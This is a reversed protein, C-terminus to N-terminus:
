FVEWGRENDAFRLSVEETKVHSQDLLPNYREISIKCEYVDFFISTNIRQEGEYPNTRICKHLKVQVISDDKERLAHLADNAKPPIVDPGSSCAVLGLFTMCIMLKKSQNMM